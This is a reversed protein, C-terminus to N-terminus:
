EEKAAKCDGNELIGVQGKTRTKGVVDNEQTAVDRRVNRMHGGNTSTTPTGMDYTFTRQMERHAKTIGEHRTIPGHRKNEGKKLTTHATDNNEGKRRM